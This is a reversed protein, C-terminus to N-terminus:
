IRTRAPQGQAVQGARVGPGPRRARPHARVAGEGHGQRGVADRTDRQRRHQQEDVAAPGDSRRARVRLEHRGGRGAQDARLGRQGLPGGPLRGHPAPGGDPRRGPRPEGPGQRAGGFHSRHAPLPRTGLAPGRGSRRVHLRAPGDRRRVVAHRLRPVARLDPRAAVAGPVQARAAAVLGLLRLGDPLKGATGPHVARAQPDFQRGPYPRLGVDVRQQRGRGGRRVVRQLPGVLVARGHLRGLRRGPRRVPHASRATRLPRRPRPGGPRGADRVPHAPAGPRHGRVARDPGPPARGAAAHDAPEVEAEGPRRTAWLVRPARFWVLLTAVFMLYLLYTFGQPSFYDQGVWGCLAFFWIGTWKARWSARM